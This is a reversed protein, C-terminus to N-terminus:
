ETRGKTIYEFFWTALALDNKRRDASRDFRYGSNVAQALKLAELRYYQDDRKEAETTINVVPPSLQSFDFKIEASELVDRRLAMDPKGSNPLTQGYDPVTPLRGAEVNGYYNEAYTLGGELPVPAKTM